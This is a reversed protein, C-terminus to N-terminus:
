PSHSTTPAATPAPSTVSHGDTSGASASTVVLAATLTNMEESLRALEHENQEGWGPAQASEAGHARANFITTIRDTQIMEYLAQRQKTVEVRKAADLKRQAAYKAKKEKRAQRPDLSKVSAAHISSDMLSAEEELRLRLEEEAEAAARKARTELYQEMEDVVRTLTAQVHVYAFVPMGAVAPVVGQALREQERDPLNNYMDYLRRKIPLSQQLKGLSETELLTTIYNVTMLMCPTGIQAIAEVPNRKKEEKDAAPVVIVASTSTSQASKAPDAPKPSVAPLYRSCIFLYHPSHSDAGM